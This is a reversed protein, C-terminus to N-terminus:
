ILYMYDVSSKRVTECKFKNINHSQSNCISVMSAVVFLAIYMSFYTNCHMYYLVFLVIYLVVMIYCLLLFLIRANNVLHGCVDMCTTFM